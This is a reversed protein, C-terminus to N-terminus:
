GCRGAGTFHFAHGTQQNQLVLSRLCTGPSSSATPADVFRWRFSGSVGNPEETEDASAVLLHRAIETARTIEEAKRSARAAADLGTLAWALTTALIVLAVLADVAAFGEQGSEAHPRPAPSPAPLRGTV